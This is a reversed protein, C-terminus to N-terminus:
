GNCWFTQYSKSVLVLIQSIMSKPERKRRWGRPSSEILWYIILPCQFSLPLPLCLALTGLVYDGKSDNCQSSALTGVSAEPVATPGRVAEINLISWLASSIDTDVKGLLTLSERCVRSLWSWDVVEWLHSFPLEKWTFAGSICSSQSLYALCVFLGAQTYSIM